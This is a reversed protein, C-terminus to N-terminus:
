VLTGPSSPQITKASTGTSSASASARHATLSAVGFAPAIEHSPAFEDSSEASRHRPRERRAGLLAATHPVDREEMWVNLVIRFHQGANRRKPFPELHEP